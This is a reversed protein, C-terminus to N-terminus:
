SPNGPSYPPADELVSRLAEVYAETQAHLWDAAADWTAENALSTTIQKIFPYNLNGLAVGLRERLASEHPKLREVVAPGGAGRGGRIFVGVKDASRWQSIVLDLEPIMRWRSTGGGGAIDQAADSFRETYHQWFARQTITEPKAARAESALEQLGRDWDNPREVVEFLPAFPSDSIKVVRLRVAFFSFADVTNQNLWRVASLHEPRFDPAVWVIIKAELGTLYTMIQGLHKHDSGELQNEILVASGDRSDRALIDASFSGVRAEARELELEIGIAKGLRHLNEALWPTFGRAEQPWAQRPAVDDLDAFLVNSM